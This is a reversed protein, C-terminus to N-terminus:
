VPAQMQTDCSTPHHALHMTGAVRASSVTRQQQQGRQQQGRQQQVNNHTCGAPARRNRSFCECQSPLPTTTAMKSVPTSGLAAPSCIVVSPLGFTHQKAATQCLSHHVMMSATNSANCRAARSLTVVSPLGFTHPRAAVSRGLSSCNPHTQMPQQTGHHPQSPKTANCRAAPSCVAVYRLGVTCIDRVSCQCM